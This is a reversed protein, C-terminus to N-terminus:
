NMDVVGDYCAPVIPTWGGAHGTAINAPKLALQIIDTTTITYFNEKPTASFMNTTNDWSYTFYKTGNDYIEMESMEKFLTPADLSSLSKDLQVLEAKKALHMLTSQAQSCKSKAVVKPFVKMGIASLVGIIIIVVMLEVLSFGSERKKRKAVESIVSQEMQHVAETHNVTANGAETPNIKNTKTM